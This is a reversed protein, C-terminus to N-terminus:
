ARAALAAHASADFVGPASSWPEQGDALSEPTEGDDNEAGPDAGAACLLRALEVNETNVAYHLPTDGAPDKANLCGLIAAPPQMKLMSVLVQAVLQEGRDAAWHLPTMGDKDKQFALTPFRRLLACADEVEGEAIKECLQGVPTEDVDDAKDPDGIRGMTSVTFGMGAGGDPKYAAPKGGDTSSASTAASSGSSRWSPALRDLANVYKAMAEARPCGLQKRWAEWKMSAEMGWPRDAPADGVSVQKYAGYLELKREVGLSGGDESGVWASASAFEAQLEESPLEALQEIAERELAERIEEFLSPVQGGAAAARKAASRNAQLKLHRRWLLAAAVTTVGIVGATVLTRTLQWRDSAPAPPMAPPSIWYRASILILL